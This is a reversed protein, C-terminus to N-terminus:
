LTAQIQAYSLTATVSVIWLLIFLVYKLRLNKLEYM